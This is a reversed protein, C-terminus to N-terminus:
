AQTEEALPRGVPQGGAPCAAQHARALISAVVRDGEDEAVAAFDAVACLSDVLRQVSAPARRLAAIRECARFMAETKSLAM